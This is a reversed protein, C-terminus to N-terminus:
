VVRFVSHTIVCKVNVKIRRVSQAQHMWKLDWRVLAGSVTRQPWKVSLSSIDYIYSAGIRSTELDCV